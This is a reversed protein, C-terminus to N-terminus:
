RLTVEYGKKYLYASAAATDAATDREIRLKIRDRPNVSVGNIQGTASTLDCTFARDIDNSGSLTVASNTSTRQNTVSSSADTGARILTAVTKFLVNGSTAPAFFQGKLNIQNGAVYSDPIVMEAYLYQSLADEFEFVQSNYLVSEVASDAQTFWEIDAGGGGGSSKFELQTWDDPSGGTDSVLIVAAGQLDLTDSTAGEITDTGDRTYTVKNSSSDSKVLILCPSLATMAAISPLNVAIAGGTCDLHFVKGADSNTLTIPSDAFTKYEVDRFPLAAAISIASAAADQAYKKASYESNDVTGGTYNAWDKASGGNAAGRRQVGIAYEKSSYESGDVTASTKTAWEAALDASADSLVASAAAAAASASAGAIETGTPWDAADAFGTGAPNLLPVRDAGDTVIDGPLTPDFDSSAVTEPLKVSRNIEDQQQQEKMVIKDFQDEVDEPYYAGQNRLDTEQILALKRRITLKWSTTLNGATLWAQAANVLTVNGGGPALVSSVTYDTTKTLTTEVGTTPHRVTVLLDDDDFVKFAYPYVSTSGNGTYTNRNTLSSLM